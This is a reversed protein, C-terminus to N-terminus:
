LIQGYLPTSQLFLTSQRFIHSQMPPFDSKTRLFLNHHWSNGEDEVRGDRSNSAGHTFRASPRAKKSCSCPYNSSDFAGLARLRSLFDSQTKELPVFQSAVFEKRGRYPRWAVLRKKHEYRRRDSMQCSNHLTTLPISPM